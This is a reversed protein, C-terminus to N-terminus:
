APAAALQATIEQEPHLIKGEDPNYLSIGPGIVSLEHIITEEPRALKMLSTISKMDSFRRLSGKFPQTKKAFAYARAIRASNEKLWPNQSELHHKERTFFWRTFFWKNLIEGYRRAEPPPTEGLDAEFAQEFSSKQINQIGMDTFFIDAHFETKPYATLIERAETLIPIKLSDTIDFFDSAYPSNFTLHCYSKSSKKQPDTLAIWEWVVSIKSFWKSVHEYISKSEQYDVSNSRSIKQSESTHYLTLAIDGINASANIDYSTETENGIKKQTIQDAKETSFHRFLDEYAAAHEANSLDFVYQRIARRNDERKAEVVGSAPHTWRMFGLNEFVYQGMAGFSLRPDYKYKYGLTGEFGRSGVLKVLIKDDQPLKQACLSLTKKGIAQFGAQAEFKLSVRGEGSLEFESGPPMARALAATYPIQIAHGLSVGKPLAGSPSEYPELRRLRVQGTLEFASQGTAYRGIPLKTKALKSLDTQGSTEVWIISKNAKKYLGDCNKRIDDKLIERDGAPIIRETFKVGAVAGLPLNFKGQGRQYFGELRDLGAEKLIHSTTVGLAPGFDSNFVELANALNHPVSRPLVPRM